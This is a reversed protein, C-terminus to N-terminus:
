RWRRMIERAQEEGYKKVLRKWEIWQGLPLLLIAGAWCLVVIAVADFLAGYGFIM